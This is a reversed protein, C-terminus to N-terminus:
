LFAAYAEDYETNIEKEMFAHATEHILDVYQQSGPTAAIPRTPSGSRQQTRYDHVTEAFMRLIIEAGIRKRNDPQRWYKNHQSLYDWEYNLEEWTCGDETNNEHEHLYLMHAITVVAKNENIVQGATARGQLSYGRRKLVWAHVQKRIAAEAINVADKSQKNRQNRKKSTEKVQPPTDVEPFLKVTIEDRIAVAEVNEKEQKENITGKAIRNSANDQISQQEVDQKDEHSHAHSGSDVIGTSPNDRVSSPTIASPQTSTTPSPTNPVNVVEQQAYSTVPSQHQSISSTDCVAYNNNNNGNIEAYATNHSLVTTGHYRSPNSQAHTDGSLGLSSFFQTPPTDSSVSINEKINELLRISELPDFITSSAEESASESSQGSQLKVIEFSLKVMQSALNVMQFRMKVMEDEHNCITNKGNPSIAFNGNTDNAEGKNKKASAGRPKPLDVPPPNDIAAQINKFYVRYKHHYPDADIFRWEQFQNTYSTLTKKSQTAGHIGKLVMEQTREIEVYEVEDKNIGNKKAEKSAEFIFYNLVVGKNNHGRCAATLEPRGFSANKDTITVLLDKM